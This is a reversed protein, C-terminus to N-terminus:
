KNKRGLCKESGYILLPVILVFLLILFSYLQYSDKAKEEAIEGFFIQINKVLEDSAYEHMNITPMNGVMTENIIRCKSNIVVTYENAFSNIINKLKGDIQVMGTFLIVLADPYDSHVLGILDLYDNKFCELFYEKEASPARVFYSHDALGLNLVVIDPNFSKPEYHVYNDKTTSSTIDASKYFDIAKRLKVNNILNSSESVPLNQMGTFMLDSNLKLSAKFLYSNLFNAQYSVNSSEVNKTSYTALSIQDGISLIRHSFSNHPPNLFYGDTEIEKLGISTYVIDSRKLVTIKHDNSENFKALVVKSTGSSFDITTYNKIDDDCVVTILPHYTNMSISKISFDAVIESGNFYVDFGSMSNNFWMVNNISINRGRWQILNSDSSIKSTSEEKGLNKSFGFLSNTILFFSLLSLTKVM